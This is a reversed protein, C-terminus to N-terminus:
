APVAVYEAGCDARVCKRILKLDRVAGGCQLCTRPRRKADLVKQLEAASCAPCIGHSVLKEGQGPSRGLLKGCWSCIRTV